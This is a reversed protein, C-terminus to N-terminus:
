SSGILHKKNIKKSLKMLEKQKSIFDLLHLIMLKAQKM